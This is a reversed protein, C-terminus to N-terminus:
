FLFFFRWVDSIAYQEMFLQITRSSKSQACPRSSSRDLLPDLCCNFDGGLILQNSNLDPLSFLVKKFFAEDDWNLGYVNALILCVGNIQGRLIIFRGNPDSFPVLKHILIAVGRSRDQFSSHYLQGVWGKRISLHDAPRFHTEQIFAISTNLQKLYNIVKNRKVPSNLGKVNWSTFKLAGRTAM